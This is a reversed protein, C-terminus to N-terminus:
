ESCLLQCDSKVALFRLAVHVSSGRSRRSSRCRRACANEKEKGREAAILPTARALAQAYAEKAKRENQSDIQRQHSTKRTKKLSSPLDLAESSIM